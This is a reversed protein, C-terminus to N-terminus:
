YRTMIYNGAGPLESIPISRGWHISSNYNGEAVVVYDPHVELVIVSHTDHNVRLIDGVKINTYDTHIVTQANGFAADSLAFAFGACGYGGYFYGGNWAYFNDNTWYMGEPFVAQQAILIQYVAQQTNLDQQVANESSVRGEAKGQQLYHLYYVSIDETGLLPVLDQNYKIYAVIDFKENGVRGEKMGNTVFHQLLLQENNGFVAVLEPYMAGYYAADFVDEYDIGQYITKESASVNNLAINGVGSWLFIATLIIAGTVRNRIKRM